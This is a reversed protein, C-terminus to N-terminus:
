PILTFGRGVKDVMLPHQADNTRTAVRAM